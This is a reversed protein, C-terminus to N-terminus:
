YQIPAGYITIISCGYLCIEFEEAHGGRSVHSIQGDTQKQSAPVALSLLALTNQDGGRTGSGVTFM